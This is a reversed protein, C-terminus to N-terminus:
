LVKHFRKRNFSKGSRTSTGKNRLIHFEEESLIEKWEKDSKIIKKESMIKDKSYSKNQSILKTTATFLLIFSLLYNKMM